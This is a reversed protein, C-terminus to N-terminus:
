KLKTFMQSNANVDVSAMMNILYFNLYVTKNLSNETIRKKLFILTNYQNGLASFLMPVVFWM